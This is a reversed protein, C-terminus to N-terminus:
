WEGKGQAKKRTSMRHKLYDDKALSKFISDDRYGCTCKWYYTTYVAGHTMRKDTMQHQRSHSNPDGSEIWGMVRENWEERDSLYFPLVAILGLVFLITIIIMISVLAEVM